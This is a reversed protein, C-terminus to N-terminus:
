GDFFGKEFMVDFVGGDFEFAFVVAAAHDAFFVVFVSFLTSEELFFGFDARVGFWFINDWLLCFFIALALKSSDPFVEFLTVYDVELFFGTNVMFNEIFKKQLAM